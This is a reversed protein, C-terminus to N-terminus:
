DLYVEEVLDVRVVERYNDRQAGERDVEEQSGFVELYAEAAKEPMTDLAAYNDYELMLMADWDRESGPYPNKLWKYSCLLGKRRSVKSVPLFVKNANNWFTQTDGPKFKYYVMRWVSDKGTCSTEGAYASAAPLLLWTCIVVLMKRM